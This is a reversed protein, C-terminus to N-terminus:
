HGFAALAEAWRLSDEVIRPDDPALEAAAQLLELARAKHDMVYGELWAEWYLREVRDAEDEESMTQLARPPRRQAFREARAYDNDSQLWGCVGAARRALTVGPATMAAASMEATLANDAGGADDGVVAAQRATAIM